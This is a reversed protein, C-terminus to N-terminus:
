YGIADSPTPILGVAIFFALMVGLGVAKLVPGTAPITIEAFPLESGMASVVSASVDNREVIGLRRFGPAKYDMNFFSDYSHLPAFGGGQPIINFDPELM